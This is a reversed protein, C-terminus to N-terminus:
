ILTIVLTNSNLINATSIRNDNNLNDFNPIKDAVKEVLLTVVQDICEQADIQSYGVSELLSVAKYVTKEYDSNRNFLSDIILSLISNTLDSCAAHDISLMSYNYIKEKIFANEATISVIFSKYENM